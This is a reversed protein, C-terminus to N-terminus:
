ALVDVLPEATPISLRTGPEGPPEDRPQDDASRADAQAPSGRGDPAVDGHPPTDAPAREVPGDPGRVEVHQLQIGAADLDRRLRDLQAELLRQATATQTDVLLTLQDHRLDLHLRLTGLEPPDLRLTAAARKGTLQAQVVRVVRAVNADTEGEAPPPTRVVAQRSLAPAARPTTAAAVSASNSAARATSTAIAPTAGGAALRHAVRVVVPAALPGGTQAAVRAPAVPPPTPAASYARAAPASAGTPLPPTRAEVQGTRSVVAPGGRPPVPGAPAQASAKTLTERFAGRPPHAQQQREDFMQARTAARSGTEMDQEADRLVDSPRPGQSADVLAADRAEERRRLKEERRALAEERRAAAEPTLRFVPACPGSAWGGWTQAPIDSRPM